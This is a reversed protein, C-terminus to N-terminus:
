SPILSTMVCGVLSGFQRRDNLNQTRDARNKAMSLPNSTPKHIAAGTMGDISKAGYQNLFGCRRKKLNKPPAYVAPKGFSSFARMCCCYDTSTCVDMCVYISTFGNDFSPSLFIM